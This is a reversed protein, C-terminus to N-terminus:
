MPALDLAALAVADREGDDEEVEVAELADVVRV